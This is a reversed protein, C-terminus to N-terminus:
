ARRIRTRASEANMEQHHVAVIELVAPTIMLTGPDAERAEISHSIEGARRSTLRGLDVLRKLGVHVFAKLWDWEVNSPPVMDIIPQLSRLEFGLETLWAPLELAIDPEGGEDRWSEMVVDVYEELEASRPAMRWTAYDCYEHVVFVGGPKLAYAARKILEHPHRVFAFVWRAWAADAQISPLNEENLDLMYRSINTLGRQRRAADLVSLFRESKDVAVITGSPGVIEALDITAYGPGCGIDLVTQGTSIGARQWADLVRPRWVRHQLGLRAIEEDHTGLIYENEEPM